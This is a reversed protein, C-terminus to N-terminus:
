SLVDFHVFHFLRLWKLYKSQIGNASHLRFTTFIAIFYIVTTGQLSGHIVLECSIQM